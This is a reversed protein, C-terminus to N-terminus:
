TLCYKSCFGSKYQLSFLPPEMINRTRNLEGPYIYYFLEIEHGYSRDAFYPKMTITNATFLKEFGTEPYDIYNNDRSRKLFNKPAYDRRDGPYMNNSREPYGGGMEFANRSNKLNPQQDDDGYFSNSLHKTINKEYEYYLPKDINPGRPDYENFNPQIISPQLMPNKYYLPDNKINNELNRNLEPNQDQYNYKPTPDRSRSHSRSRSQRSLSFSSQNAFINPDNMSKSDNKYPAPSLSRQYQNYSTQLQPNYSNPNYQDDKQKYM